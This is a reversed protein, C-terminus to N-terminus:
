ILGKSGGSARSLSPDRPEPRTLASPTAGCSLDTPDLVEIVITAVIVIAVVVVVVVSRRRRRVVAVVSQKHGM